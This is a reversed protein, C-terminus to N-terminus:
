NDQLKKLVWGKLQEKVTPKMFLDDFKQEFRKMGEGFKQAVDCARGYPLVVKEGSDLYGLLYGLKGSVPDFHLSLTKLKQGGRPAQLHVEM